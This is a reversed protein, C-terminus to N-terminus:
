KEWFLSDTRRINFKSTGKALHVDRRFILSLSSFSEANLPMQVIILTFGPPTTCTLDHCELYNQPKKVHRNWCNFKSDTKIHRVRRRGPVPNWIKRHHQPKMPLDLLRDLLCTRCPLFKCNEFLESTKKNKNKNSKDANFIADCYDNQWKCICHSKLSM